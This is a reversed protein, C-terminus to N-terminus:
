RILSSIQQAVGEITEEPLMGSEPVMDLITHGIGKWENLYTFFELNGTFEMVHSREDMFLLHTLGAGHNGILVNAERIKGIQERMSLHELSVVEVQSVKPLRAIRDRLKDINSITRKFNEPKSRPHAVYPVRNIIVVKGPIMHVDQLGYRQLVFNSFAAVRLRSPCRKRTTKPYIPATYGPPVLIAREFCVGGKPLHQVFTTPGFLTSWVPDLGGEAHGDLFVVRVGDPNADNPLSFFTNWWDTMTHYLNVYEYRTIFMTTGKVTEVCKLPKTRGELPFEMANVVSRIYHLFEKGLDKPLPVHSPQSATSFAGLEYSPMENDGNRGMVSALPEGGRDSKIRSVDVRFNQFTCHVIKTDKNRKCGHSPRHFTQDFTKCGPFVIDDKLKSTGLGGVVKVPNVKMGATKNWLQQEQISQSTSEAQWSRTSYQIARYHSLWLNAGAGLGLIWLVFATKSLCDGGTRLTANNHERRKLFRM